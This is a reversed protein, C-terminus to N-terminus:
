ATREAEAQLKTFVAKPIRIEVADAVFLHQYEGSKFVEEYADRKGFNYGRLFEKSCIGNFHQHEGDDPEPHRIPNSTM